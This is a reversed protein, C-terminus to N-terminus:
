EVSVFFNSVLVTMCDAIPMNIIGLVSESRDTDTKYGKLKKARSLPIERVLFFM